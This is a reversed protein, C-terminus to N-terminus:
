RFLHDGFSYLVANLLVSVSLTSIAYDQMKQKIIAIADTEIYDNMELKGQDYLQSDQCCLRIFEVYPVFDLQISSVIVAYVIEQMVWINAKIAKVSSCAGQNLRVNVMMKILNDILHPAEANWEKEMSITNMIRRLPLGTQKHVINAVSSLVEQYTRTSSLENTMIEIGERNVNSNLAYKVLTHNVIRIIEFISTEANSVTDLTTLFVIMRVFSSIDFGSVAEINANCYTTESYLEKMKKSWSQDKPIMDDVSGVISNTLRQTRLELEGNLWDVDLFHTYERVIERVVSISANVKNVVVRAQDWRCKQKTTGTQRNFLAVVSNQAKVCSGMAYDDMINHIHDFGHLLMWKLAISKCGQMATFFLAGYTEFTSLDSFEDPVNTIQQDIGIKEPSSPLSPDIYQKGTGQMLPPVMSVVPSGSYLRSGDEKYVSELRTGEARNCSYIYKYFKNESTMMSMFDGITGRSAQSVRMDLSGSFTHILYMPMNLIDFVVHKPSVQDLLCGYIHRCSQQHNQVQEKQLKNIYGSYHAVNDNPNLKYTTIVQKAYWNVIESIKMGAQVSWRKTMHNLEILLMVWLCFEESIYQVEKMNNILMGAHIPGISDASLQECSRNNMNWANLEIIIDTIVDILKTQGDQYRDCEHIWDIGCSQPNLFLNLILCLVDMTLRCINYSSMKHRHVAEVKPDDPGKTAVILCPRKTTLVEYRDRVGQKAIMDTISQIRGKNDGSDYLWNKINKASQAANILCQNLKTAASTKQNMKEIEDLRKLRDLAEQRTEM